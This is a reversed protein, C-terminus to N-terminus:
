VPTAAAPSCREPAPPRDMHHRPPAAPHQIPFDMVGTQRSSGPHKRLSGGLLVFVRRTQSLSVPDRNAHSMCRCSPSLLWLRRSVHYFSHVPYKANIAVRSLIVVHEILRDFLIVSQLRVEDAGFPRPRSCALRLGPWLKPTPVLTKETHRSASSTVRQWEIRVM